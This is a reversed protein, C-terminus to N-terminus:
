RGTLTTALKLKPIPPPPLSSGAGLQCDNNPNLERFRRKAIHLKSFFLRQLFKRM